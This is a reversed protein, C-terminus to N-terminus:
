RRLRQKAYARVLRERRERLSSQPEHLGVRSNEDRPAADAACVANDVSRVFTQSPWFADGFKTNVDHSFSISCAYVLRWEEVFALLPVTTEEAM